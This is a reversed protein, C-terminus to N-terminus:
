GPRLSVADLGARVAWARGTLLALDEPRDLDALGERRAVVVEGQMAQAEALHAAFSGAGFRFGFRTPLRLAIANTGVEGADPALAVGYASADVMAQVDDVALRPLDAPLILAREAGAQCAHAVAAQLALNMGRGRDQILLRDRAPGEQEPSVLAVRDIAPCAEATSLVHELMARVLTLRTAPDLVRALRTKCEARANVAVLAWTTM